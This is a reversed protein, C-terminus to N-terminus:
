FHTDCHTSNQSQCRKLVIYSFEKFRGIGSQYLLNGYSDNFSSGFKRKLDKREKKKKLIERCGEFSM